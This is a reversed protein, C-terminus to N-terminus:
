FIRTNRLVYDDLINRLLYDASHALAGLFKMEM